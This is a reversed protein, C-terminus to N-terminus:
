CNSGVVIFLSRILTSGFSVTVNGASIKRACSCTAHDRSWSVKLIVLEDLGVKSSIKLGSPM